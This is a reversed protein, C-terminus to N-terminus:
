LPGFKKWASEPKYRLAYVGIDFNNGADRPQADTYNINLIFNQSEGNRLLFRTSQFVRGQQGAFLPSPIQPQLTVGPVNCEIRVEVNAFWYGSNAKTHRLVFQMHYKHGPIWAAMIDHASRGVIM